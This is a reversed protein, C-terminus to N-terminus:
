KSKETKLKKQQKKGSSQLNKSHFQKRQGGNKVLNGNQQSNKPFISPVMLPM